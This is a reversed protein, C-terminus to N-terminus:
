GGHSVPILTVCDNNELETQFGKLVSIERGNKMVLLNSEDVFDRNSFVETRLKQILTSVSAEEGLEVNCIKANALKQLTGVLEVNVMM